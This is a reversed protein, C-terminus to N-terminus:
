HSIGLYAKCVRKFGTISFVSKVAAPLANYKSIGRVFLSGNMVDRDNRPLILNRTRNSVGFSLNDYVYEPQKSTIVRHLFSSALFDFYVFLDSGLLRDAHISVSQYRGVGYVFRVCANFAKEFIKRSSASLQGFVPCCYTLHPLLLSRVLLERTELPMSSAVPWMNRLGAFVKASASRAHSDWGLQNEIILGLNKVSDVYEVTVGEFVVEPIDKAWSKSSFVVAKTKVANLKLRNERAWVSVRALDSNLLSMDMFVNDQSVSKYLQFDDAFLHSRCHRLRSPLDNIFASFLLPGLVSGQPVGCRVSLLGSQFGNVCVSQSRDSLYSGIMRTADRTFGFEVQLKGLLLDHSVSDFAKSFDLLLLVTAVNKSMNVRIDNTVHLLASTTSYGARFGSQFRFLLGAGEMYRVIQNKLLRELAKSLAPLMSIPRFDDMSRNRSNKRLPIVKAVKWHAPFFSKTIISNFLHTVSPLIVPLLMRIFSIPILDLGVSNSKVSQIAKVVELGSVCRFSFSANSRPRSVFSPSIQSSLVRPFESYNAGGVFHANFEDATFPPVSDDTSSVFGLRKLSGWLSRTPSVRAFKKAFYRKKAMSAVHSARNRLVKFVSLKEDTRFRKWDAYALDRDVIAKSVEANFWPSVSSKTLCPVLPAHRDLLRLVDECFAEVMADVDNVCRLKSWDVARADALLGNLDVDHLRRVMRPPKAVFDLNCSFSLFILDHKSIGPLSIQSFRSVNKVSTTMFHDIATSTTSSFHTPEESVFRLSAGEVVSVYRRTKASRVILDENFDGAILIEPYSVSFRQLLEDLKDIDDVKPPKYMVGLLVKHSALCLEVFLYELTGIVSVSESVVRVRLSKRVYLAVGGKRRLQRDNRLLRYGEIDVSKNSMYSKFHTESIAVCHLNVGKLLIRFEDMKHRLGDANLHAVNLTANGNPLASKLVINPICVGNSRMPQQRSPM